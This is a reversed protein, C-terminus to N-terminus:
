LKQLEELSYKNWLRKIEKLKMEDYLSEVKIKLFSVEENGSLIEGRILALESSNCQEIFDIVDDIGFDMDVEDTKTIYTGM